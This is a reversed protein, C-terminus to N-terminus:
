ISTSRFFLELLIRLMYFIQMPYKPLRRIYYLNIYGCFKSLIGESLNDQGIKIIIESLHLIYKNFDGERNACIEICNLLADV